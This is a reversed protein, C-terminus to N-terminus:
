GIREDELEEKAKVLARLDADFQEHPYGKLKCYLIMKHVEAIQADLENNIPDFKVTQTLNQSEKTNVRGM